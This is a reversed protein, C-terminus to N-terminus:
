PLLIGPRALLSRPREFSPRVRRPDDPGRHLAVVCGVALSAQGGFRGDLAILAADRVFPHFIVTLKLFLNVVPVFALIVITASFRAQDGPDQTPSRVRAGLVVTGALGVALLLSWGFFIAPWSWLALLLRHAAFFGATGLVLWGIERGRPPQTLLVILGALAAAIQFPDSLTLSRRSGGYADLGACAVALLSLGLARRAGTSPLAPNALDGVVPLGM